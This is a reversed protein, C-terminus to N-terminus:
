PAIRGTNPNWSTIIAFQVYPEVYSLWDAILLVNVILYGSGLLATPLVFARNPGLGSLGNTPLAPVCM